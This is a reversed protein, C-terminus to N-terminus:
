HLAQEDLEFPAHEDVDPSRNDPFVLNIINPWVVGKTVLEHACKTSPQLYIGHGGATVNGRVELVQGTYEIRKAIADCVSLPSLRDAAVAHSTMLALLPVFREIM